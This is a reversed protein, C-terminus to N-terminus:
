RAQRNKEDDFTELLKCRRLCAVRRETETMGAEVVVHNYLTRSVRGLVCQPGAVATFTWDTHWLLSEDGFYDGPKLIRKGKKGSACASCEVTSELVIFLATAPMGYDVLHENVKPEVVEVADILVQLQGREVAPRFLADHKIAASLTAHHKASKKTSPINYSGVKRRNWDGYKTGSIARRRNALFPLVANQVTEDDSHFESSSDSDSGDVGPESSLTGFLQVVESSEQVSLGGVAADSPFSNTDCSPQANIVDVDQNGHSGCFERCTAVEGCGGTQIQGM